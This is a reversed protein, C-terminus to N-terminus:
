GSQAKRLSAARIANHAIAYLLVVAKVRTLGRVNFQRLNRNRMHANVCEITSARDKYIEKAEDTKMREHWANIAPVNSPKPAKVNGDEDKFETPPAYVTTRDSVAAINEPKNFGGDALTNEPARGCRAEIEEIAAPLLAHDSGCNTVSAGVIIQSDVDASLQVNYAPNFGGNAMKMVRADPDTISVRPRTKSGKKKKVAEVGPMQRRAETIREKLERAVRERAGRSRRGAAGPDDDDLERRLAQVQAEAEDYCEELSESGHFSSSGAHARTRMGDHAVCRLTVLKQQLLVTLSDTLIEDFIGGSQSRFDSLTHHNVPVGGCLWRFYISESCLRELERGSGIGRVAAYLWLALLIRPDIPPRGAGGELARIPEYLATVDVHEVFEWIVRVPHDDEVQGDLTAQIFEVQNRVPRQVRPTGPPSPPKPVPTGVPFLTDDPMSLIEFSLIFL